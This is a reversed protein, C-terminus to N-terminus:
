RDAEKDARWDDAGHEGIHSLEANTLNNAILAVSCADTLCQLDHRSFLLVIYKNAIPKGDIIIEFCDGDLKKVEIPNM